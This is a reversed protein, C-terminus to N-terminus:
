LPRRSGGMAAARAVDDVSSKYGAVVYEGHQALDSRLGNVADLLGAAWEANEGSTWVREGRHLLAPGTQPVYPTGLEYGLYNGSPGHNGGAALFSTGYRQLAYNVGAYINAYPDLINDPLNGSRYAAFTGPITQMLGQSPHGAQANSDWLNIANPNGGSEFAIINLVGNDLSTPLGLMGLVFDVAGRWQDVGGVASSVITAPVKADDGVIWDLIADGLTHTGRSLLKGLPGMDGMAGDAMSEFGHIIPRAAAALAGRAAHGVADWADSAIGAVDHIIGGLFYHGGAGGGGGFGLMSMLREAGGFRSAVGTPVVLEGPTAYIPVDDRSHNGPVVGGGAFHLAPIDPLDGVGPIKSVVNNWVKQIGDTYVHQIVWNIPVALANEIGGWIIGLGTILDSVIEKVRDKMGVFFGVVDEIKQGIWDKVGTFASKITDWHSVIALVALGIPGTLIALLLPWHESVWNWVGSIAGSIKDIAGLVFGSVAEWVAQVIDRFTESRTYAYVLGAALAILALVVVGIPNAEMVFNLAAQVAIYAKTVAAVVSVATNYIYLAVVIAGIGVAIPMLWGQYKELWGAFDIIAPLVSELIFQALDMLVPLIDRRFMSWLNQLTPLLTGTV